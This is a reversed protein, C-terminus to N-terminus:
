WLDHLGRLIGMFSKKRRSTSVSVWWFLFLSVLCVKLIWIESKIRQQLYIRNSQREFISPLRSAFDILAFDLSSPKSLQISNFKYFSPILIYKSHVAFHLAHISSSSRIHIHYFLMEWLVGHWTSYNIVCIRDPM